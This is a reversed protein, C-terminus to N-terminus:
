AGTAERAIGILTPAMAPEARLMIELMSLLPAMPQADWTLRHLLIAPWCGIWMREAKWLIARANIGDIYDRAQVWLPVGTGGLQWSLQKLQNAQANFTHLMVPYREYIEDLQGNSGLRARSLGYLSEPFTVLDSLVNLPKQLVGKYMKCLIPLPLAEDEPTYGCLETLLARTLPYDSLESM